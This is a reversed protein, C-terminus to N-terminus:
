LTLQEPAIGCATQLDVPTAPTNLSVYGTLGADARAAYVAQKAAFFVSAGLQYPPEGVAKSGLTSVTAPNSTKLFTVNFIQPIDLATPPKYDWTGATLVQGTKECQVVAETLYFGLSQIFAGEVQGVDVSPNLSKGCDYVIDCRIVQIEGTLVDLEVESCCACYVFYDYLPNTKVSGSPGGGWYGQASLNVGNSFAADIADQWPTDNTHTLYPQLRKLLVDAAMIAANVVTESTGSGGTVTSNPITETSNHQIVIMSLPVSLRYAVAQAVKTNIGQGLEVGSHAVCITGDEALVNINVGMIYGRQTIGYKVPTMYIGRKRWRNAKNFAAVAATRKVFEAQTKLAEWVNQLQNYALPDGIPTTQKGDEAYFNMERVKNPPLKTEYAVRDIVNEMMFVGSCVGPSRMDTNTITNTKLAAATTRYNPIFYANDMMTQMMDLLGFTDDITYGADSFSDISIADIMGKSSFGVKYRALTPHRGGTTAMDQRRMLQSRVPLGINEAAVAVATALPVNRSIKGGFAGGCRRTGARIKNAPKNIAVSVQKRVTTPGQSASEIAVRGDEDPTVLVSQTEMYFHCQGHTRVDGTVVSACKAWASDVDGRKVLPYGQQMYKNGKHFSGQKIADDIGIVAPKTAAGYNVTVLRAAREAIDFSVAVVLAVYQGYCLVESEAFIQEDGPFPGANNSGGLDKVDKATVVRVVGPLAAAATIDISSITARAKTSTVPCAFLCRNPNSLDGTYKAEGSAQIKAALKTVPANIPALSPDGGAYTQSATSTPRRYHVAASRLEPPLTAIGPVAFHAVAALFSKYFTTLALSHRYEEPAELKPSTADDDDDGDAAEVSSKKKEKEEKIERSRYLNHRAIQKLEDALSQVGIKLGAATLPQKALAATTKPAFFPGNQMAGIAMRVEQIVGDTAKFSFAANVYAHTNVHRGMVKHSDFFGYDDKLPIDVNVVFPAYDEPSISLYDRVAMTAPATQGSQIVSLTAGASLLLLIVDSPFDPHSRAMELNGAWSGANRVQHNAVLRLHRGIAGGRQTNSGELAKILNALSVGAGVRVGDATSEVALLEKLNGIHVFVDPHDNPHSNYYKVVGISTNGSVLRVRAEAKQASQYAAVADSLSEAEVWTPTAASTSAKGGGMEATSSVVAGHGLNHVRSVTGALTITDDDNEDEGIERLLGDEAEAKKRQQQKKKDGKGELLRAKEENAFSHAAELIPRYGTCRCINGSFADETDDLTPKEGTRQLMGYMAMVMGPSCYGCQSGNCNALREMAPHFGKRESGIGEVTTVKASNLSALPRLCSNVIAKRGDSYEVHVTCAGCGGEACGIKTGTLKLTERLFVALTMRPDFDCAIHTTGNVDFSVRTGSTSATKVEGAKAEAALDVWGESDSRASRKTKKNNIVPPLERTLSPWPGDPRELTRPALVRSRMAKRRHEKPKRARIAVQLVPKGGGKSACKVAYSVADRWGKEDEILCWDGDADRFVLKSGSSKFYNMVAAWGVGIPARVANKRGAVQLTVYNSPM